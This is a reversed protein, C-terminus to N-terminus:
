QEPLIPQEMLGVWALTEQIPLGLRRAALGVVAVTLCVGIIGALVLTVLM